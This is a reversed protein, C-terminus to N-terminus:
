ISKKRIIDRIRALREDTDSSSSSDSNTSTNSSVQSAHQSDTSTNTEWGEIERQILSDFFSMMRPDENINRTSYDHSMHSWSHPPTAMSQFNYPSFLDRPNESGSAEKLLSGSWGKQEFPSWLKDFLM